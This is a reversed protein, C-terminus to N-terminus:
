IYRELESVQASTIRLRESLEISISTLIKFLVEPAKEGLEVYGKRNLVYVVTENNARVDTSRPEGTILGMEGFMVGPRLDALRVQRNTEPIKALVCVTGRVLLFMQESPDGQQLLLDGKAFTKRVLLNQINKLNQESLGKLLDIKNLALEDDFHIDINEDQLLLDEAWSLAYDLDSFTRGQLIPWDKALGIVTQWLPSDAHLYSILLVKDRSILDIDIQRLITIASDDLETVGRLGLIIFDSKQSTENIKGALKDVSGFFIAGQAELVTIRQGTKELVNIAHRPRSTKSRLKDGSYCGRVVVKEMRMAFMLSAGVLGIGIAVVFGAMLTVITVLLSIILAPIVHDLYVKKESKYMHWVQFYEGLDVMTASVAILVGTLVVMPVQEIYSGLGGLAAFFVLGHAVGALRSNGGAKVSACSRSPAGAGGLGGLLASIMNAIGQGLLEKNGNHRTNSVSDTAVASLLSLVSGLFALVLAAGMIKFIVRGQGDSPHMLLSWQTFDIPSPFHSPISGIVNIGTQAGGLAFFLTSGVIIGLIGGPLGKHLYKGALTIVAAVVGSLPAIWIIQQVGLLGEIIDSFTSFGFLAPIQKLLILIAFGNMLGSIVSRPLYKILRGMHLLGFVLQLAGALLVCSFMLVIAVQAKLEPNQPLETSSLVGGLVAGMIIALSSRPGSIMTKTGGLLAAVISMIMTGYLGALIGMSAYQPGLPAFALLGSVISTPITLIASNLGGFADGLLARKAFFKPRITPAQESL